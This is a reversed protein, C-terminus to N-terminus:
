QPRTAAAKQAYELNSQYEAAKKQALAHNPSSAPVAGMLAIAERWQGAVLNWDQKSKASQTLQAAITARNVAERFTDPQPSSDPSPTGAAPSFAAPVSILTVQQIEPLKAVTNLRGVRGVAQATLWVSALSRTASIQLEDISFRKIFILLFPLTAGGADRCEQLMISSAIAGADGVVM